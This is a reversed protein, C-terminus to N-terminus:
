GLCCAPAPNSFCTWQQERRKCYDRDIEGLEVMQLLREASKLHDRIRSAAYRPSLGRELMVFWDSAEALYLERTSQNLALELATNESKGNNKKIAACWREELQHLYRYAWVADRGLWTEFYGGRAWSSPAPRSMQQVAYHQLYASPSSADIGSEAAARLVSEIFLPGEFWWNGFLEADFGCCLIPARELNRAAQFLQQTM